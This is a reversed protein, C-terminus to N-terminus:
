ARDRSSSNFSNRSRDKFRILPLLASAPAM